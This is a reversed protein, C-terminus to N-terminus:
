ASLDVRRTSIARRGSLRGAALSPEHLIRAPLYRQESQTRRSLLLVQNAWRVVEDRPGIELALVIWDRKGIRALHFSNDLKGAEFVGGFTPMKEFYPRM